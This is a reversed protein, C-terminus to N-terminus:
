IIKGVATLDVIFVDFLFANPAIQYQDELGGLHDHVTAALLGFCKNIRQSHDPGGPWKKKHLAAYVSAARIGCLCQLLRGFQPPM